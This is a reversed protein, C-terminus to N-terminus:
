LRVLTRTATGSPTLLRAFYIGAPADRGADDCGDWRALHDGPPLAGRVLTRVRRGALDHVVLSAEGAAPLTFALAVPGRAPQPSAALSLGRPAPPAVALLPDLPKSMDVVHYFATDRRAAGDTMVVQFYSSRTPQTSSPGVSLVSDHLSVWAPANLLAYTVSPDFPYARLTDRQVTVGDLRFSRGARPWFRPPYQTAAGVVFSRESILAGSPTTVQLKWAGEDAPGNYPALYFWAWFWDFRDAASLVKDFSGYVSGDPKRVVITATDCCRSQFEFWMCLKNEGIGYVTPQPIPGLMDCYSTNGVDGGVQAETFVGMDAIGFPLSGQYAPQVAWLSSLPNDVGTYPDRPVYTNGPGSYDGAEFHLHPVTSYGSSGVLGLMEGAPVVDGLQVTMSSARLHYYEHYSGDGGAIWIWNGDDPWNFDCHRDYPSPGGLYAVTGSAAALVKTGRDMLRFSYLANDTGAHGDYTDAGGAYDLVGTTPDHDMYNVIWLGDHLARDLPWLYRQSFPSGMAAAPEARREGASAPRAAAGPGDPAQPAHIAGTGGPALAAARAHPALLALSLVLPSLRPM